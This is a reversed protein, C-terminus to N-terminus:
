QCVTWTWLVGWILGYLTPVVKDFKLRTQRFVKLDPKGFYDKNVSRRKAENNVYEEQGCFSELQAIKADDLGCEIQFKYYDVIKHRARLPLFWIYYLHFIGIISVATMVLAPPEDQASTAILSGVALFFSQVTAGLTRYQQVNSEFVGWKTQAKQVRDSTM